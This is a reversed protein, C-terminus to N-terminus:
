LVLRRIMLAYVVYMTVEVGAYLFVFSHVDLRTCAAPLVALAVALYSAQWAVSRGFARRVVLLGSLPSVVARVCVAAALAVLVWRDEVWGAGLVIRILQPGFATIGLVWIAALTVLATFVCTFSSALRHGGDRADNAWRRQLIQGLPLALLMMPAGVLRQAQTVRGCEALGYGSSMAWIVVSFGVVDMLSGLSGLLPFRGYRRVTSILMALRPPADRWPFFALAGVGWSLAFCTGLGARTVMALVVFLIGQSARLLAVSRIRGRRLLAMAVTQTATALLVTVGVLWAPSSWGDAWIGALQMFAVVGAGWVLALLLAADRLHHADGESESVLIANDLRLAGLNIAINAVSLLNALLGFESADHRRALWPTAALVAGQSVAYGLGLVLAGHASSPRGHVLSLLGASIARPIM